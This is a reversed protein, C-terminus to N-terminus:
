KWGGLKWWPRWVWLFGAPLPFYSTHSLGLIVSLPAQLPHYYLIALVSNMLDGLGELSVGTRKRLQITTSRCHKQCVAFCNLYLYVHINKRLNKGM